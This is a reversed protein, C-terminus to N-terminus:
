KYELLDITKHGNAVDKFSQYVDKTMMADELAHHAQRDTFESEVHLKYANMLGLDNKLGYYIKILRLLDIMQVGSTIDPIRHLRSAKKLELIDNQGWVFVMPRNKRFRIRLRELFDRPEMGSEIVAQVIHLYKKTRYSIERRIM